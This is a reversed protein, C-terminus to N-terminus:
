REDDPAASTTLGNLLKELAMRDKDWERATRAFLAGQRASMGRLRLYAILAMACFVCLLGAIAYLRAATDWTFAIVLMCGMAAAFMMAAAMWAGVQLRRGIDRRAEEAECAVLDAYAGAHQVVLAAAAALRTLM